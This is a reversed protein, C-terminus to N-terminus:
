PEGDDRGDDEAFPVTSGDALLIEVREEMADLLAGGQRALRVGEEFRGLAQELSLEGGELEQVVRELSGLVADIRPTEAAEGGEGGERASKRPRSAM